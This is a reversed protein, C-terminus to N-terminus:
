YSTGEFIRQLGNKPNLSDDYNVYFRNMQHNTLM